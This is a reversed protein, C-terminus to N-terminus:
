QMKNILVGDRYICRQTKKWDPDFKKLFSNISPSPECISNELLDIYTMKKCQLIEVPLSTLRNGKLYLERLQTLQGIQKPLVSIMNGWVQLTALNKCFCIPLPLERLRNYRIDLNTLNTLDSFTQPLDTLYNHSLDLVRLNKLNGIEDPLHNIDNNYLSLTELAGLAGIDATLHTIFSQGIKENKLNLCIIRGSENIRTVSAVGVNQLSNSDLLARVAVTDTDESQAVAIGALLFLLLNVKVM